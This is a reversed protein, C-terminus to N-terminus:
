RTLEGYISLLAETVADWNFHRRVRERGAEGMRRRLGEDALLRSIGGALAAADGYDVILGCSTEIARGFRREAGGEQPAERRGLGSRRRGSWGDVERSALNKETYELGLVEPVGGVATAVVPKSSAMAELLVLGFAEYESPLVFVDCAGYASRFLAEDAIHGTLLFRERIGLEELRKLLADKVGMDGGALVFRTDPHERLVLPAAEALVMLGKNVALRGTYLVVREGRPIGFFERFQTGDPPPEFKSFDVGAPLVRVRKGSTNLGLEAMLRVESRTHAIIIDFHNLAWQGVTSDYIGRLMRRKDGGWTSWRPHFHATLVTPLRRIRGVFPAVNAQFYGYSHAHIIDADHSLAGTIMGPYFVYHAEGGPTWARFRRVPVGEVEEELPARARGTAMGMKSDREQLRLFPTESYLDSTLVTVEHGRSRMAKSIELVHTEVGGPAPPFRTCLQLIRM